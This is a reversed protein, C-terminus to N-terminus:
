AKRRGRAIKQKLRLAARMLRIKAALHLLDKAVRRLARAAQPSSSYDEVVKAYAMAQLSVLKLLPEAVETFKILTAVDVRRALEDLVEHLQATLKIFSEGLLRVEEGRADLGALGLENVVAEILRNLKAVEHLAYEAYARAFRERTRQVVRGLKETTAKNLAMAANLAKAVDLLLSAEFARKLRMSSQM